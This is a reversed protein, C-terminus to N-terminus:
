SDWAGAKAQHPFVLKKGTFYALFSRFEAALEDLIKRRATGRALAKRLRKGVLAACPAFLVPKHEFGDLRARLAEAAAPDAVAVFAPKFALIQSELAAIDRQAALVEVACGLRAAVQLANRGISGTSGLVAIKLPTDQM